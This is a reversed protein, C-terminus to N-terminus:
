NSELDNLRKKLREYTRLQIRSKGSYWQKLTNIAVGILRCFKKMSLDFREALRDLRDLLIQTEELSVTSELYGKRSNESMEIFRCNELVYHGNNDIRDISAQKMTSGKDRDWLYKLDDLTLFNKIGKKVYGPWSSCRKKISCLTYSLKVNIPNERRWKRNVPVILIAM